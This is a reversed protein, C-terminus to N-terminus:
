KLASNLHSSSSFTHSGIHSVVLSKSGSRVSAGAPTSRRANRIRLAVMPAAATRVPQVASSFALCTPPM